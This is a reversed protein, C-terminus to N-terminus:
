FHLPSRFRNLKDPQMVSNLQIGLSSTNETQKKKSNGFTFTNLDILHLTKNAPNELEYM